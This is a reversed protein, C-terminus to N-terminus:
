LICYFSWMRWIIWWSYCCFYSCRVLLRILQWRLILLIRLLVIIM